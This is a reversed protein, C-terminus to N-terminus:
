YKLKGKTTITTFVLSNIIALLYADHCVIHHSYKELYDMQLAKSGSM